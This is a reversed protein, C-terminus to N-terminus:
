EQPILESVYMPEDIGPFKYGNMNEKAKSADAKNKYLIVGNRKSHGNADRQIFVSVIEGHKGFMEKLEAEGFHIPFGKVFV